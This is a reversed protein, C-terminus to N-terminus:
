PSNAIGSCDKYCLNHATNWFYGSICNCKTVDNPDRGNAQNDLLCNRSCVGGDIVFNEICLCSDSNVDYYSNHDSTCPVYCTHSTTDYKMGIICNCHNIDEALGTTNAIISCNRVCLEQTFNWVFGTNCKCQDVFSIDFTGESNEDNSCIRVCLYLTEEWIRNPM